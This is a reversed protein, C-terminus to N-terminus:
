ASSKKKKKKWFWNFDDKNLCHETTFSSIGLQNVARYSNMFFHEMDQELICIQSHIQPTNSPSIIDIVWSYIIELSTKNLRVAFDMGPTRDVLMSLKLGLM